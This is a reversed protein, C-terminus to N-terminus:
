NMLRGGGGQAPLVVEGPVAAPRGMRDPGIGRRRMAQDAEQRLMEAARDVLFREGAELRLVQAGEEGM